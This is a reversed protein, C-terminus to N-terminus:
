HNALKYIEYLEDANMVHFSGITREGFFTAKEALLHLEEDSLVKGLLESLCIPMGLSHFVAETAAIGEKAVTLDDKGERSIGFVAEAYHAFRDPIFSLSYRAYSGFMASLTAGHTVDFMGSLEHGLAHVSFERPRGLGTLGNHSLSGAWMIESMAETDAPSKVVMPGFRIVTKLLGEAIADTMYNGSAATFYRDLTHMMIDSVGAGVQYAPLTAALAPNMIAFLPRNLPSNLGRKLWGDENTIVLSDSTESGAAPITLIVGLPLCRSPTYKKLAYDWFPHEPNAVGISIAKASDIASGGGVALLFDIQENQCLAIGESVLSLRPNPKVGGLSFVTLGEAELSHIVRDLLGSKKASSGGFHVLVRHGGFAKVEKGVEYETDSGFIIKTPLHFDFRKM